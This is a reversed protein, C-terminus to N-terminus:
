GDSQSAQIERSGPFEGKKTLRFAKGLLPLPHPKEYFARSKIQIHGSALVQFQNTNLPADWFLATHFFQQLPKGQSFSSGFPHSAKGQPHALPKADSCRQQPFRFEQHQILRDVAQIGRTNHLDAPQKLFPVPLLAGSEQDGAVDQRLQLAQRGPINEEIVASQELVDRGCLQHLASALKNQEPRWFRLPSRSQQFRLQTAGLERHVWVTGEVNVTQQVPRCFETGAQEPM